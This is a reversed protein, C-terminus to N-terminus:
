ISAISVNLQDENEHRKLTKLTLQNVLQLYLVPLSSKVVLM